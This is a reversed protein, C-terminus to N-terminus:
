RFPFSRPHQESNLALFTMLFGFGMEVSNVPALFVFLVATKVRLVRRQYSVVHGSARDLQPSDQLDDPRGVAGGRDLRLLRHPLHVGVGKASRVDANCVPAHWFHNCATNFHNCLCLLIFPFFNLIFVADIASCTSFPLRLVRYPVTRLFYRRAFM